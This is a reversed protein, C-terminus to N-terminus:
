RVALYEAQSQSPFWWKGQIGCQDICKTVHPTPPPHNHTHVSTNKCFSTNYSRLRVCPSQTGPVGPGHPFWCSCTNTFTHFNQVNETERSFPSENRRESILEKDELFDRFNKLFKIHFFHVSKTKIKEQELFGLSLFTWGLNAPKVAPTMLRTWIQM